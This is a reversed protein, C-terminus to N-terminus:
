VASTQMAGVFGLEEPTGEAVVSGNELRYLRDCREITSLRHAVILITKTGKLAAVAEMVGAETTADLASTAEDLVLVSPDHYLARAIGIRQRQGGSLRVGREGVITELKGPLNSVFEGLQAANIARQVATVDIQDDRLGFAVNRRLTDDTLYISQPVYGIQDQWGRLRTQINQGDVTIQGSSPTLLGLILDVTTSKGSGSSGILGISEGKRIRISLGALATTPAEPYIYTANDVRIEHKFECSTGTERAAIEQPALRLENYVTDIAPVNFRLVQIAAIIRNASPMLRFAAAAFLGVTSVIVTLERARFLMTEVLIAMGAVALLELWLRPLQQMVAQLGGARNQAKYHRSFQAVFEEERGMLKVDKAGGLGQQLHQTSLVAHLQRAEGWRTVRARTAYHFGLAASGLVAVVILTGLPEITLLLTAIALLVMTETILGMANSLVLACTSVEGTVNTMLQASNRRLHFAYPQRLYLTFLRESLETQFNFAFRTQRWTLFVSYSNKVVYIGVLALMAGLLLQSQTPNGLLSLIPQLRPYRAGINGQQMIALAPIVLGVGLTELLVGVLMLFVLTVANTREKRDLLSIIKRILTM